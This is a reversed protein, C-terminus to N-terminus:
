KTITITDGINFEIEKTLYYGVSDTSVEKYHVLFRQFKGNDYISNDYKGDSLELKTVVIKIETNGIPKLNEECSSFALLILILIKHKM